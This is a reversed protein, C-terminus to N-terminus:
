ATDRGDTGTGARTKPTLRQTKVRKELLNRTREVLCNSNFGKTRLFDMDKAASFGM